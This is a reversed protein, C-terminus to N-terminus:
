QKLRKNNAHRLKNRSYVTKKTKLSLCKHWLKGVTIEVSLLGLRVFFSCVHSKKSQIMLCMLVIQQRYKIPLHKLGFSSALKMCYLGIHTLCSTWCCVQSFPCVMVRGRQVKVFVVSMLNFVYFYVNGLM